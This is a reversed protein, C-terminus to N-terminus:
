RSLPPRLFRLESAEGQLAVSLHRHDSGIKAWLSDYINEASAGASTKGSIVVWRTRKPVDELPRATLMSLMDDLQAPAEETTRRQKVCPAVVKSDLPHHDKEFRGHCRPM